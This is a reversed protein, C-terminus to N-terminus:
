RGNSSIVYTNGNYGKWTLHKARPKGTGYRKDPNKTWRGKKDRPQESETMYAIFGMMVVLWLVGFIIM